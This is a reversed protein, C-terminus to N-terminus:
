QGFGDNWRSYSICYVFLLKAPDAKQLGRLPVQMSGALIFWLPIVAASANVAAALSNVAAELNRQCDRFVERRHGFRQVATLISDENSKAWAPDNDYLICNYDFRVLKDAVNSRAFIALAILSAGGTTRTM